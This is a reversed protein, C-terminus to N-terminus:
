EIAAATIPCKLLSDGVDLGHLHLYCVNWDGTTTGLAGLSDALEDPRHSSSSPTTIPSIPSRYPQFSKQGRLAMLELYIGASAGELIRIWPFESTNWIPCARLGKIINPCGCQWNAQVIKPFAAKKNSNNLVDLVYGLLRKLRIPGDDACLRSRLFEVAIRSSFKSLCLKKMFSDEMRDFLMENSETTQSSITQALRNGIPPRSYENSCGFALYAGWGNM